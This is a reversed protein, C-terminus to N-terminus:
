GHEDRRDSATLAKIRRDLWALVKARRKKMDRPVSDNVKAIQDILATQIAIDMHDAWFCGIACHTGNKGDLKKRILGPRKSISERIMTLAEIEVVRRMSFPAMVCEGGRYKSEM